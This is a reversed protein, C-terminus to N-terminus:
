NSMSPCSNSFINRSKKKKWIKQIASGMFCYSDSLGRLVPKNLVHRTISKRILARVQDVLRM